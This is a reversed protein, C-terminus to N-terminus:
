PHTRAAHSDCARGQHEPPWARPPGTSARGLGRHVSGLRARRRRAAQRRRLYAGLVVAALAAVLWFGVSVGTSALTGHGPLSWRGPGPPTGDTSALSTVSFTAGVTHSRSPAAHLAATGVLTLRVPISVTSRGDVAPRVGTATGYPVPRALTGASVWRGVQGAADVVGYEVVVGAALEPSFEGVPALAGDYGVRQAGANTLTWVGEVQDGAVTTDFTHVLPDGSLSLVRGTELAAVQPQVALPLQTFVSPQAAALAPATARAPTAGAEAQQAGTGTAEAPGVLLVLALVAMGVCRGRRSSAGDTM